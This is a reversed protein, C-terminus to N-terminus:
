RRVELMRMLHEALPGARETIDGQFGGEKWEIVAARIAGTLILSSVQPDVDQDVEGRAKGGEVADEILGRAESRFDEFRSRVQPYESFLDQFIVSTFEPRDQFSALRDHLFRRLVEQTNGEGGPALRSRDFVFSALNDILDEKDRFHRFIAPESIEVEQAVRRLTLAHIGEGHILDIAAEIIQRKRDM